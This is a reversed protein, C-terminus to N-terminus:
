SLGEEHLARAVSPLRKMRSYYRQLGQSLELGTRSSAMLIWFLYFDAITLQESILYNKDGLQHDLLSFAKALKERAREKETEPFNRFFPAYSGHVESSMFALAELTRWKLINTQPLLKGSIAAIYQLIVMNETLIEGDDLELAPIYGKPNISLFDRHDETKKEPTISILTYDLGAEILAMHDALSCAGPFYYLIM